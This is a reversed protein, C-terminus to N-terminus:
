STKTRVHKLIEENTFGLINYYAQQEEPTIAGIQVRGHVFGLLYERAADIGETEKELLGIVKETALGADDIEEALALLDKDTPTYPM